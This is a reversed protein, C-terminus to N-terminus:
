DGSTNSAAMLGLLATVLGSTFELWDGASAQWVSFCTAAVFLFAYLWQRVAAPLVDTLPNM